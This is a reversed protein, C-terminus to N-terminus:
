ASPIWNNVNLSDPISWRYDETGSVNESYEDYGEDERTVGFMEQKENVRYKEELIQLDQYTDYFVTTKYQIIDNSSPNIMFTPMSFRCNTMVYIPAQSRLNYIIVAPLSWDKTKIRLVGRETLQQQYYYHVLSPYGEAIDRYTSKRVTLNNSEDSTVRTDNKIESIKKYKFSIFSFSFHQAFSLDANLLGFPNKKMSFGNSLMNTEISTALVGDYNEANTNQKYEPVIAVVYDSQLGPIRIGGGKVSSYFMADPNNFLQQFEKILM